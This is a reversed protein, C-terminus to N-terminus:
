TRQQVSEAQKPNTIYFTQLLILVSATLPDAILVGLLGAIMFMAFQVAITLAPAIHVARREVLPLVIYGDIGHVILYLAVVLWVRGTGQALALLVAPVSSVIAGLYPVFEFLGAILGLGFALPFGIAKMAIFVLLGITIMGVIRGIFWRWLVHNLRGLIEATRERAAPPVLLLIGKRYLGPQAALYISMFVMVVLDVAWESLHQLPKMDNLLAGGAKGVLSRLQGQGTLQQLARPISVQFQSFESTVRPELWWASGGFLALIALITIAVGLGPLVRAHRNLWLACGRLFVAIVISAYILVFVRAARVALMAAFALLILLATAAAIKKWPMSLM